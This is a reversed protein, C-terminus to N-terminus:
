SRDLAVTWAGCGTATMSIRYLGDQLGTVALTSAATGRLQAGSADSNLPFGYPVVAAEYSCGAKAPMTVTLRYSDSLHIEPGISADTGSLEAHGAIAPRAGLATPLALAAFLLWPALVLLAARRGNGHGLDRWLYNVQTLFM